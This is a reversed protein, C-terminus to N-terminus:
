QGVVSGTGEAGRVMNGITTKSPSFAFGEASGYWQDVGGMPSSPEMFGQEVYTGWVDQIGGVEPTWSPTETVSPDAKPNYEEPSYGHSQDEANRFDWQWDSNDRDLKEENAFEEADGSWQGVARGHFDQGVMRGYDDGLTTPDIEDAGLGFTPAGFLSLLKGLGMGAVVVGSVQTASRLAPESVRGSLGLGYLGAGVLFEGTAALANMATGSFSISTAIMGGVIGGVVIGAIGGLFTPMQAVEVAMSATDRVDSVLNTM